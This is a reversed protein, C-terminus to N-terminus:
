FSSIESKAPNLAAYVLYGLSFMPVFIALLVYILRNSSERELIKVIALIPFLLIVLLIVWEFGSPMSILTTM